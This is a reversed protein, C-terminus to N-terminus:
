GMDNLWDELSSNNLSIEIVDGANSYYLWGNAQSEILLDDMRKRSLLYVLWIEHQLCEKHSYGSEILGFLIFFFAHVRIIPIIIDTRPAKEMLGFDRLLALFSSTWKMKLYESWADLEPHIKSSNQLFRYVDSKAIRVNASPFRSWLLSAILDKVLRDSACIYPFLVQLKSKSPLDKNLFEALLSLKPLPSREVVYRKHISDLIGNITNTSGKGILNGKLVEKRIYRWNKVKHYETLVNVTEPILSGVRQLNASYRQEKHLM